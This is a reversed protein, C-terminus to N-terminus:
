WCNLSARTPMAYVTPRKWCALYSPRRTTRRSAHTDMLPQAASEGLGLQRALRARGIGYQVGLACAKFRERENPHTDATADGPVADAAKAMALYPDGSLYANQMAADGSLAAAIGFEQQAWDILALGKGPSVRDSPAGM